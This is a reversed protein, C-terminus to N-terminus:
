AVIFGASVVGTKYEGEMSLSHVSEYCSSPWLIYLCGVISNGVQSYYSRKPLKSGVEKEVHSGRTSITRRKEYAIIGVFGSSRWVVGVRSGTV